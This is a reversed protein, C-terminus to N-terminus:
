TCATIYAAAIGLQVAYAIVLCLVCCVGYRTRAIAHLTATYTRRVTFSYLVRVRLCLAKFYLTIFGLAYLAATRAQKTCLCVVGCGCARVGCWVRVLYAM